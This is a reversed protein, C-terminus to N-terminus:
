AVAPHRIVNQMPNVSEHNSFILNPLISGKFRAYYAPHCILYAFSFQPHNGLFADNSFIVM